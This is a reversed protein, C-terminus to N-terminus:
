HEQKENVYKNIWVERSHHSSLIFRTVCHANFPQKFDDESDNALYKHCNEPHM